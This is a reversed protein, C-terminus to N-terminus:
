RRGIEELRVHENFIVSKILDTTLESRGVPKKLVWFFGVNGLKVCIDHIMGLVGLAALHM